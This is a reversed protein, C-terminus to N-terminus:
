IPQSKLQISECPRTDQERTGAANDSNNWRSRSVLLREGAASNSVSACEPSADSWSPAPDIPAVAVRAAEDPCRALKTEASFICFRGRASAGARGSGTETTVSLPLKMGMGASSIEEASNRDLRTPDHGWRAVRFVFSSYLHCHPFIGLSMPRAYFALANVM